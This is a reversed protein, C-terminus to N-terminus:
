SVSLSEKEQQVKNIISTIEQFEFPKPLVYRAGLALAQACLVPDTGARGSMWTIYPVDEVRSAAYEIVKMGDNKNTMDNDTIVLDYQNFCMREIAEDATSAVTVDHGALMLLMELMERIMQEDDVVLIKIKM